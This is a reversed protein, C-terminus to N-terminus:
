ESDKITIDWPKGNLKRKQLVLMIYSFLGVVFLMIGQAAHNMTAWSAAETKPIAYLEFLIAAVFFHYAGIGGPVPAVMGLTGIALVTVADIFTLGSTAEMAFFVVYGMLAYNLWIMLTWFIFWFKQKLRLITKFGTILGTVFENFKNYFRLMKIKPLLIRYLIILVTIIILILFVVFVINGLNDQFKLYLPALVHADVFKGVLQLQFIIVFFILLFLVILDFVREAIVSGFLSNVPIRDKRSLVGCRTIEGLRPIAMNVFYGTMVAYFTAVVNTNYGLSRILINWRVARSIHSILAFVYSFLIWRYDAKIFENFVERLDVKRFVVWLLFLGLILFFLYKAISFFRRKM